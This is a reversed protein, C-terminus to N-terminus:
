VVTGLDDPMVEDDVTTLKEVVEIVGPEEIEAGVCPPFELELVVGDFWSGPLERGRKDVVVFQM